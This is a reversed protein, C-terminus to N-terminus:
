KRFFLPVWAKKLYESELDRRRGARFTEFLASHSQLIHQPLPVRLRVLGFLIYWPFATSPLGCRQCLRHITVLGLYSSCVVAHWKGRGFQRYLTLSRRLATTCMACRHHAGQERGRTRNLSTCSRRLFDWQALISKYLCFWVFCMCCCCRFLFFCVFFTDFSLLFADDLLNSHMEESIPRVSHCVPQGTLVSLRVSWKNIRTRDSPVTKAEDIASRINSAARVSHQIILRSSISSCFIHRLYTKRVIRANIRM